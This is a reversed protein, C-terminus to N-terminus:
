AAPVEVPSWHCKNKFMIEDPFWGFLTIVSNEIWYLSSISVLQILTAQLHLPRYHVCNIIQVYIGVYFCIKQITLYSNMLFVMVKLNNKKLFQLVALITQKDMSTERKVTAAEEPAAM